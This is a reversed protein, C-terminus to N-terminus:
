LQAWDQQSELTIILRLINFRVFRSIDIPKISFGLKVAGPRNIDIIIIKTASNTMTPRGCATRCYAEKPVISPLGLLRTVKIHKLKFKNEKSTKRKLIYLITFKSTTSKTLNKLCFTHDHM